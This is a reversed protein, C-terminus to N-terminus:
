GPYSEPRTEMHQPNESQTTMNKGGNPFPLEETGQKDIHSDGMENELIIYGVVYIYGTEALKDLLRSCLHVHKPLDTLQVQESGTLDM